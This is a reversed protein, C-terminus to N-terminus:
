IGTEHFDLRLGIGFRTLGFSSSWTATQSKIRLYWVGTGARKKESMEVGGGVVVLAVV